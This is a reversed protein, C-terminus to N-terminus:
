SGFWWVLSAVLFSFPMSLLIMMAMEEKPGGYRTTLLYSIVAMPMAMQVMMTLSEVPSLPLWRTALWAVAVGVVPRWASFMLVRGLAARDSIRLQAVSHGLLLLMVPLTISGLMDLTKMVTDPLQLQLSLLLAGILLAMIPGSKLLAKPSYSGSMCAVGFTFHSIQVVSSIVIGAALGEQGFFAFCVPLGLNGTNPNTLPPLYFQPSIGLAKLLLWNILAVLALIVITSGILSAMAVVDMDMSLVSHLLLAPIGVNSVLTGLQPNNLYDTKRSLFIGVAMLLFVPTLAQTLAHLM